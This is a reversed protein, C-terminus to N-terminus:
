AHRLARDEGALAGVATELLSEADAEGSGPYEALGFRVDPPAVAEDADYPQRLVAQLRLGVILGNELSTGPLLVAFTDDAIAGVLDRAHTNDLIRTASRRSADESRGSPWDLKFYLLVAPRHLITASQLRTEVARMFLPKKLPSVRGLLLAHKLEHDLSDDMPEPEPLAALAPPVQAVPEESKHARHFLSM